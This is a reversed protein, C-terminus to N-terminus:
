PLPTALLNTGAAWIESGANWYMAREVVLDALPAAGVSEVLAGFRRGKLAEVDHMPVTTRSNAPVAIELTVPTVGTTDPTDPLATIRVTGATASTNAILIFTQTGRTGGAEGDALAWRQATATAGPSNHAETWFAPSIQPGPFWMSREVVIPVANTSTIACSVAANDLLPDEADVYITRRSEAAVSYTKTLVTGGTLLYRVEVTAATTTPNALLIFLDFFPGSAGEALFWSTAPATVGASDHGAAFTQTGVTRYMAREVLIPQTATIAASVDTAALEPAQTNVPVTTRSHPALTYNRDIPALPAPRLYRITATAPTDGPNQLLYFLSFGGTSGEALFWTTSPAASAREAHAGYETADWSMTRETVLPTNSEVVSAFSASHGGIEDVFVTRRGGHPVRVNVTRATGDDGDLRVVATADTTGPNGIALRTKFFANDAGEALFRQIDARPHSGAAQEQLNTRGDGDPDGAAGDNGDASTYDLGMAIEWRDDLGDGDRDLRSLLDVAFVVETANSDAGGPLIDAAASTFITMTGAADMWGPFVPAPMPLPTDYAADWLYVTQTTGLECTGGLYLLRRGDASSSPLGIRGAVNQRIRDTRRDYFFRGDGETTPCFINGASTTFGFGVAPDLSRSVGFAYVDEPVGAVARIMRGNVVDYEYWSGQYGVFSGLITTVTAALLLRTGDPSFGLPTQFNAILPLYSGSPTPAVIPLFSRTAMDRLVWYAGAPLALPAVFGGSFAIFRGDASM